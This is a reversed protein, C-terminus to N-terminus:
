FPKKNIKLSNFVQFWTETEKQYRRSVEVSLWTLFDVVTPTGPDPTWGQGPSWGRAQHLDHWGLDRLLLADVLDTPM